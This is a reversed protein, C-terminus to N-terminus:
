MVRASGECSRHPVLRSGPVIAYPPQAFLLPLQLVVALSPETINSQRAGLAGPLGLAARLTQEECLGLTVAGSWSLMEDANAGARSQCRRVKTRDSLGSM